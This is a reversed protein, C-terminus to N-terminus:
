GSFIFGVKPLFFFHCPLSFIKHRLCFSLSLLLSEHRSEFYYSPSNNVPCFLGKEKCLLEKTGAFASLTVSYTNHSLVPALIWSSIPLVPLLLSLNEQEEQFPFSSKAYAVLPSFCHIDASPLSCFKQYYFSYQILLSVLPKIKAELIIRATRCIDDIYFDNFSILSRHDFNGELSSTGEWSLFIGVLYCTSCM